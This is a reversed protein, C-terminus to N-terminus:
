NPSPATPDLQGVVPGGVVTVPGLDDSEPLGISLHAVWEPRPEPHDTRRHCGRSETRATAAAVMARAVTLLNTAEFAAQTPAVTDSASAAVEDLSTGAADLSSADRLVGVHRSMTSRITVRHAADVLGAHDDVPVVDEVVPDPLEWALDRGLETGAVVSETLSNSALRNAGHVGTCSVEGVAFLGALATKGDLSAPVGGCAYHAAPAVPIRDRAPDLGVKRCAETITPFREYFREGMHTADLYVHDDVGGPAEAMRRSIAAAVVDRPALDEQPHVGTM